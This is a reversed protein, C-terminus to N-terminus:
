FQGAFSKVEGNVRDLSEAGVLEIVTGLKTVPDPLPWLLLLVDSSDTADDSESNGRLITPLVLLLMSWEM